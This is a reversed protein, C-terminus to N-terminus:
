PKASGGGLTKVVAVNRNTAKTVSVRPGAFIPGAIMTWLAILAIWRFDM